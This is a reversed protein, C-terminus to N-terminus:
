SIIVFLLQNKFYNLTTAMLLIHFGYHTPEPALNTVGRGSLISDEAVENWQGVLFSLFSPTVFQQVLGILLWTLSSYILIKVIKSKELNLAIFTAISVIPLTLYTILYKLDIKNNYPYCTL